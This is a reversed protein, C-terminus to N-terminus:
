GIYITHCLLWDVSFMNSCTVLQMSVAMSLLNSWLNKPFRGYCCNTVMLLMEVGFQRITLAFNFDGPFFM